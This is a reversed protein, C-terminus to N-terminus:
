WVTKSAQKRAPKYANKKFQENIRSVVKPLSKMPGMFSHFQKEHDTFCTSASLSFNYSAITNRNESLCDEKIIPVASASGINHTLHVRHSLSICLSLSLSISTVDGLYRQFQRHTKCKEKDFIQVKTNAFFKASNRALFHVKTEGRKIPVSNASETALFTASKSVTGLEQSQKQWFAHCPLSAGFFFFRGFKRSCRGEWRFFHILNIGFVIPFLFFSQARTQARRIFM